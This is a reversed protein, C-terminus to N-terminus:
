HRPYMEWFTPIYRRTEVTGYRRDVIQLAYKLICQPCIPISELDSRLFHVKRM